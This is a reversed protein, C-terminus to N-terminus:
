GRVKSKVFIDYMVLSVFFVASVAVLPAISLSMFQSLGILIIFQVFATLSLSETKIYMATVIAIALVIFGWQTVSNEVLTQFAQLIEGEKLYDIPNM